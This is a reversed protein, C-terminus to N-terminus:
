TYKRLEQVTKSELRLADKRELKGYYVLKEVVYLGASVTAWLFVMLMDKIFTNVIALIVTGFLLSLFVAIEPYNKKWAFKASVVLLVILVATISAVPLNYAERKRLELKKIDTFNNESDFGYYNNKFKLVDDGEIYMGYIGLEENFATIGAYLANKDDVYVFVSDDTLLTKLETEKDAYIEHTVDISFITASLFLYIIVPAFITFGTIIKYLIKNKM